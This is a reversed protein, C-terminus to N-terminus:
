IVPARGVYVEAYLDDEGPEAWMNDGDTNWNGDLGAYYLDSTVNYEVEGYATAYFGRSPIISDGSEGGINVEDGDGGLLVYEVGWTQYADIIFNRIKESNDAGLYNAYIYETTVITTQIGAANKSDRLDQFTYAGNSNNLAENTIIVYDYSAPPLDLSAGLSILQTNKGRYVDVLEPNDVTNVVRKEDVKLDRFLSNTNPRNTLSVRVMIDKFYSVKGTKPIYSVPYLNLVLIRYGRLEYVGVISYQKNPFPSISNYISNDLKFETVENSSIHVQEQAPEIKYSGELIHTEGTIIEIDAMDKGYPLLMKVIKFPLSPSGTQDLNGGGDISLRQFCEGTPSKKDEILIDSITVKLEILDDNNGFVNEQTALFLDSTGNNIFVNSFISCFYLLSIIICKEKKKLNFHNM